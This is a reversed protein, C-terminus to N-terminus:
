AGAQKQLSMNAAFIDAMLAKKQAYQGDTNALGQVESYVSAVGTDDASKSAVARQLRQESESLSDTLKRVRRRLNDTDREFGQERAAAELRRQEQVTDLVFGQLGDILQAARSEDREVARVALAFASVLKDDQDAQRAEARAQAEAERRELVAQQATLESRMEDVQRQADDKAARLADRDEELSRNQQLLELFRAKTSEAVESREDSLLRDRLSGQVAEEILGVIRDLGVVNVKRVGRKELQRLSETRALGRIADRIKGTVGRSETM